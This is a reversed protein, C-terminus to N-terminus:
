PAAQPVDKARQGLLATGSVLLGGTLMIAAVLKFQNWFMIRLAGERLAIAAAATGVAARGAALELATQVTAEALSTPLVPATTEIPSSAALPLVAPALGRRTLRDRLRQRGRAVRSRVTGAPWGLQHAAQEQTLGELDCLVVAARYREPLRNLEEHIVAQ